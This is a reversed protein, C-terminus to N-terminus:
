RICEEFYIPLNKSFISKTLTYKINFVINEFFITIFSPEVYQQSPESAPPAAAAEGSGPVHTPKKYLKNELKSVKEDVPEASVRLFIM